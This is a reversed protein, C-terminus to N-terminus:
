LGRRAAMHVVTRLVIKVDAWLTWNAVYLYDITVMEELPIRSSGLIQWPGTIGPKLHLRRRHWGHIRRDDERVLPRPGVISMEGRLVNVFQPLEDLSTCRLFRGVRTIRPDDSIKFLGSAENLHLLRQQQAEADEVMSRFKLMSFPKGDRGIRTQRFLVPGSSDLRVALVILAMLPAVALLAALSFVLDFTRKLARSSRTLGFRRVGLVPIGDIDDFEVTSGVVELMRPMLSVKCGCAKVNSILELAADGETEWRLALIVRDVDLARLKAQIQDLPPTGDPGVLHLTGVLEAKVQPSHALKTALLGATRESGVVLCREPATVRRATGRALLRGGAAFLFLAAWLELMQARDPAASMETLWVILTFLTALQFLAPLEDLTSKAIVVDDGDYLGTVKSVVLVLPLALLLGPHVERGGLLAITCLLALAASCLDATVLLRRFTTDRAASRGLSRDAPSGVFAPRLLTFPTTAGRRERLRRSTDRVRQRQNLSM